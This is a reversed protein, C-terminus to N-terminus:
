VGRSFPRAREMAEFSIEAVDRDSLGCGRQDTRLLTYRDTLRELWPGAYLRQWELELHTLWHPAAVLKPGSGATAFAIRAGDFSSCFRLQQRPVAM